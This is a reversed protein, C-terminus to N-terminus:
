IKMGLDTRTKKAQMYPAGYTSPLPASDHYHQESESESESEPSKISESESEPDSTM